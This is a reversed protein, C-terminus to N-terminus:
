SVWKCLWAFPAQGAREASLRVLGGDGHGRGWSNVCEIVYNGGSRYARRLTIIHRGRSAGDEPGVPDSGAREFRRDVNVVIGGSYGRSLGDVLLHVLQQGVAYLATAQINFRQASVRAMAPPLAHRDFGLTDPQWSQYDCSGHRRFAALMASTRVGINRLASPKAGDRIRGYTWLMWPSLREGTLEYVACAGNFGTCAESSGQDLIWPESRPRTMDPLQLDSGLTGLRLKTGLRGAARRVRREERWGTGHTVQRM